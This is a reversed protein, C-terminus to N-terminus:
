RNAAPTKDQEPGPPNAKSMRAATAASEFTFWRQALVKEKLKQDIYPAILTKFAFENTLWEYRCGRARHQPLMGLQIADGFLEPDAGYAM